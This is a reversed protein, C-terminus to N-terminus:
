DEWLYILGNDLMVFQKADSEIFGDGVEVALAMLALLIIIRIM